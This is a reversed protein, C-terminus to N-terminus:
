WNECITKFRQGTNEFIGEGKKSGNRESKSFTKQDSGVM